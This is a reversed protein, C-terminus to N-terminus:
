TNNLKSQFIFQNLIPRFFRPNTKNLVACLKVAHNLSYAEASDKHLTFKAKLNYYSQVYHTQSVSENDFYDDFVEIIYLEKSPTEM